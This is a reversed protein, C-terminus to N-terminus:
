PVLVTICRWSSRSVGCQKLNLHQALLWIQRVDIRCCSGRSWWQCDIQPTWQGSDLYTRLKVSRGFPKNQHNAQQLDDLAASQSCKNGVGAKIQPLSVFAIRFARSSAQIHVAQPMVSLEIDPLSTSGQQRATSECSLSHTLCPVVASQLGNMRRREHPSQTTLPKSHKRSYKM